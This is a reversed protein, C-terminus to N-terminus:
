PAFDLRERRLTWLKRKGREGRRAWSWVEFRGGAVMWARLRPEEIAKTMRAAHNNGSTCQIGLLCEPTAAVIDIVGFLDRKFMRPGSGQWGRVTQEVVQAVWGLRKCEALTRATPSVEAGQVASASLACVNGSHM